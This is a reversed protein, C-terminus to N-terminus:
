RSARGYHQWPVNFSIYPQHRALIKLSFIYVKMSLIYVINHVMNYRDITALGRVSGYSCYITTAICKRIFRDSGVM